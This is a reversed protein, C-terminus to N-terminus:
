LAIYGATGQDSRLHVYVNTTSVNSHGLQHQLETVDAGNELADAAHTHRYVHPTVVVKVGPLRAAKVMRQVSRVSLRKGNVFNRFVPSTPTAGPSALALAERIVTPNCGVTRTKQGKGYITITGKDVHLDGVNLGVVESVRCGSAYMVRILTQDRGTEAEAAMGRVVNVDAIREQVRRKARPLRIVEGVNAVCYGTRKAFSLLSKINTLRRIRYNLSGELAEVWAGVDDITLDPLCKPAVFELFREADRRYSKLTQESRGLLWLDVM